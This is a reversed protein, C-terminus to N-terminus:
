PKGEKELTRRLAQDTHSALVKNWASVDWARQGHAMKFALDAVDQDLARQQPTM